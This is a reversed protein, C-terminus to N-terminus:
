NSIPHLSLALFDVGLTLIDIVIKLFAQEEEPDGGLPSLTM